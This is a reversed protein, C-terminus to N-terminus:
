IIVLNMKKTGIIPMSQLLDQDNIISSHMIHLLENISGVENIIRSTGSLGGYFTYGAFYKQSKRSITTEYRYINKIFKQYTKM